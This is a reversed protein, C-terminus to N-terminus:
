PECQLPMAFGGGKIFGVRDRADIAIIFDAPNASVGKWRLTTTSVLTHHRTRTVKGSGEWCGSYACIEIRGKQSVSVSVPTFDKTAECGTPDCQVQLDKNRCNWDKSFSPLSATLLVLALSFRKNKPIM